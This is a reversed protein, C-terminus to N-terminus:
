VTLAGLFQKDARLGGRRLLVDCVLVCAVDGTTTGTGKHRRGALKVKWSGSSSFHCAAVWALMLSSPGRSDPDSAGLM